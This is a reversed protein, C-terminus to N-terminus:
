PLATSRPLPFYYRRISTYLRTAPTYRYHLLLTSFYHCTAGYRPLLLIATAQHRSTARYLPLPTSKSAVINVVLIDTHISRWIRCFHRMSNRMSLDNKPKTISQKQIHFDIEFDIVFDIEFDIVFDIVLNIEFDIVLDIEFDIEFDIVFDIVSDIVLDIEFDIEFDIVFDLEVTAM